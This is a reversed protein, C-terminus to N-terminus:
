VMLRRRRGRLVRGHPRRRAADGAPDPHGRGARRHPGRSLRARAGAREPPV